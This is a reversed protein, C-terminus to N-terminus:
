FTHRITMRALQTANELTKEVLHLPKFALFPRLKRSYLECPIVRHWIKMAYIHQVLDDHDHFLYQIPVQQSQNIKVTTTEASSFLLHSLNFKPAIIPDEINSYNEVFDHFREHRTYAIECLTPKLDYGIMTSYSQSTLFSDTDILTCDYKLDTTTDSFSHDYVQSFYICHVNHTISLKNCVLTM